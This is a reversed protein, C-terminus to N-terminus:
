FDSYTQRLNPFVMFNKIDVDTKSLLFILSRCVYFNETCLWKSFHLRHHNYQLIMNRNKDYIQLKQRLYPSFFITNVYGKEIDM